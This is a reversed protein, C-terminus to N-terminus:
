VTMPTPMFLLVFFLLTIVAVVTRVPGLAETRTPPHDLLSHPKLTGGVYEMALLVFLAVFWAAWLWPKQAKRVSDLSLVLGLTAGARVRSSIARPDDAAPASRSFSSIIAIVEFWVFWFIAGSVADGFHAVGSRGAQHDRFVHAAISVFFFGLMARHIAPALRNQAPGFLAYAVHGGDLQGVPILNIMTVFMGAWGAFGIPSLFIDHGEPVSPAAFHDILKLLLSNGLQNSDATLPVVTSHSIGWVYCPLAVCLGALPGAAGIDLLAIRSSITDRMRIVAGMTGFPSVYPMPIFHPLSASVRHIRAAIYHGFEHALLIALLAAAFKAGDVLAARTTFAAWPFGQTEPASRSGIVGNFFVSGATVLFLLAPLRLQAGVSSGGGSDSGGSRAESPAPSDNSNPASDRM